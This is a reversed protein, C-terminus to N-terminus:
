NAFVRLISFVALFCDGGGDACGLGKFKFGKSAPAKGQQAALLGQHVAHQAQPSVRRMLGDYKDVMQPDSFDYKKTKKAFYTAALKAQKGFSVQSDIAAATKKSVNGM